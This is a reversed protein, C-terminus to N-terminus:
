LPYAWNSVKNPWHQWSDERLGQVSERRTPLRKQLSLTQQCDQLCVLWQCSDFWIASLFSDSNYEALHASVCFSLQKVVVAVLPPFSASIVSSGFTSAAEWNPCQLCSHCDSAIPYRSSFSHLLSVFDLQCDGFIGLCQRRPRLYETILSLVMYLWVSQTLSQGVVWWIFLM